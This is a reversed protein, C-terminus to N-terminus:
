ATRPIRFHRYSQIGTAVLTMMVITGVGTFLKKHKIQKM